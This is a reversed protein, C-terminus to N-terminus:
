RRSAMIAPCVNLLIMNSLGRWSAKEASQDMVCPARDTGADLGGTGSSEALQDFPRRLPEIGTVSVGSPGVPGTTGM